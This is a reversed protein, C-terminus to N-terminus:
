NMYYCTINTNQKVFSYKTIYMYQQKTVTATINSVNQQHVPEDKTGNTATTFTEQLGKEKLFLTHAASM